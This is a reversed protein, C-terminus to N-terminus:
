AVHPPEKKDTDNISHITAPGRCKRLAWPILKSAAWALGCAVLTVALADLLLMPM